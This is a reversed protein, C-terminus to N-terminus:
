PGVSLKQFQPDLQLIFVPMGKIDGLRVWADLWDYTEHLSEPSAMSPERQCPAMWFINVECEQLHVLRYLDYGTISSKLKSVLEEQAKEQENKLFDNNKLTM